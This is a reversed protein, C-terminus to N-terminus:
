SIGDAAPDVSADRPTSRAVRARTARSADDFGPEPVHQMSDPAQNM